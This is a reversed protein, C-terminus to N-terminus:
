KDINNEVTGLVTELLTKVDPPALELTHGRRLRPPLRLPGYRVRILRNVKSGVAEFM